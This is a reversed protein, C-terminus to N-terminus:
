SAAPDRSAALITRLGGLAAVGAVCWGVGVLGFRDAMKGMLPAGLMVGFSSLQAEVSLVAAGFRSDSADDLRDILLPRWVNGLVVM